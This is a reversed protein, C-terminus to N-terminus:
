IGQFKKPSLLTKQEVAANGPPSRSLKVIHSPGLFIFGHNSAQFKWGWGGDEPFPRPTPSWTFSWSPSQSSAEMFTGFACSESTRTPKVYGYAPLAACQLEVPFAARPKLSKWVEDGTDRWRVAWEYGKIGKTFSPPLPM